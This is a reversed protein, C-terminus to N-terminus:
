GGKVDKTLLAPLNVDTRGALIKEEDDMPEEREGPKGVVSATKRSPLYEDHNPAPMDTNGEYVQPLGLVGEHQPAVHNRRLDRGAGDTEAEVRGGEYPPAPLDRRM